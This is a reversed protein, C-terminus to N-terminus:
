LSNPEILSWAEAKAAFLPKVKAWTLKFLESSRYFNLHSESQWESLTFYVQKNGSDVMLNVGNCGEFSGILPASENFIQVFQNVHLEEFTM